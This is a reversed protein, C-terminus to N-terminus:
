AVWPEPDVQRGDAKVSFHLHCGTSWGTSGVTGVVQGRVLRAGPRVVWGEAHLYSTTLRVGEVLGHDIILRWGGSSDFGAHTVVGDAAARIPTGCPASLDVGAHLRWERFIPHLRPGFPSTVRANVPRLLVGGGLAAGLGDGGAADVARARAQARESVATAASEPLLRVEPRGLLSLPDLYEEGRILGWHLCASAACAHGSALRGIVQGAAVREGQSVLAEVPELTSRVGGHDVVVVERGAVVGTFSVVGAAPAVVEGGPSGAIDVGRHGANWRERPPDFSGVVPGALPLTGDSARAVPAVLGVRVIVIVLGLAVWLVHRKNTM